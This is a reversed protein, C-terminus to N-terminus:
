TGNRKRLLEQYRREKEPSLGGSPAAGQTPTPASPAQIPSGGEQAASQDVANKWNQYHKKVQNLGNTLNQTSQGKKLSALTSQLMDLERVAVQGLAGGTPSAQRMAQLENFGINAKITDLTADLDYATTGPIKGLVEGILGTSFFGTQALAEDVKDTVIKGKLAATEALAKNRPTMDKPGGPIPELDGDAKYRYGPPPKQNGGIVVPTIQKATESEKRIANEYAKRRPDGVPIAEREAILRSLNSPQQTQPRVAPPTVTGDPNLLGGAGIAMPKPTEPRSAPAVITGDPLRLGGAGIAQGQTDKKLAQQVQALQMAASIGTPGIQMLRPVAAEFSPSQALVGRVADQEEQQRITNQLSLVGTTQQLGSLANQNDAQRQSLYGSLFAGAM